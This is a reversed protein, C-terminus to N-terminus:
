DWNSPAIVSRVNQKIVARTEADRWIDTIMLLTDPHIDRDQHMDRLLDDALPHDALTLCSRLVFCAHRANRRILPRLQQCEVHHAEDHAARVQKM